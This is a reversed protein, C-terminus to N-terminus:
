LTGLIHHLHSLPWCHGAARKNRKRRRLDMDRYIELNTRQSIEAARNVRERNTSNTRQLTSLHKVLIGSSFPIPTSSKGVVLAPPTTPPSRVTCCHISGGM